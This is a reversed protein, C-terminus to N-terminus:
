KPKKIKNTIKQSPKNIANAKTVLKVGLSALVKDIPNFVSGMEGGAIHLGVAKGSAQDIVLSGSDGEQTFQKCLVQNVFRVEGIIGYDLKINMNVDIIESTTKGSTRGVKVVKMGRKPKIVGKPIGIGKIETVIDALRNQVPLAIACDVENGFNGTLVFKKFAYLHAIVDGPNKGGDGEGPYLIGDGQKGNGSKALVHSNSLIFENKGDTVIAGITGVGENIAGVSFGPQIIKSTINVQPRIKGLPVVDTSIATKGSLPEPITPPILEAASLNQLPIKKEVYFTLGLKGTRKKQSIKESIGVAIVNKYNMIERISKTHSRAAATLSQIEFAPATTLLDLVKKISKESAM